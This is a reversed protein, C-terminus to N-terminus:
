IPSLGTKSVTRTQFQHKIALYGCDSVIKDTFNYGLAFDEHSHGSIWVIDPYAELLSIFRQASPLMPDVSGSYIPNVYDSQALILQYAQWEKDLNDLKANTVQDGSSVIFDVGLNTAYALAQAWHAQTSAGICTIPPTLLHFFIFIERHMGQRALTTEPLNM